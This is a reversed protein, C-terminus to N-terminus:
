PLPYHVDFLEAIDLLPTRDGNLTFGDSPANNNAPVGLFQGVCQLPDRNGNLPRTKLYRQVATRGGTQAAAVVDKFKSRAEGYTQWLGASGRLVSAELDEWGLIGGHGKHLMYPKMSSGPQGASATWLPEPRKLAGQRNMWWDIVSLTGNAVNMATRKADKRVEEALQVARVFPFSHPVFVIGVSCALQKFIDEVESAPPQELATVLVYALSLALRADCIFTLDDGGQIIRRCPYYPNANKVQAKIEAGERGVHVLVYEAGQQLFARRVAELVAQWGNEWRQRLRESWASYREAFKEDSVGSEAMCTLWEYLRQGMKLGDVAVVAMLTSEEDGRCIMNEIDKPVVWGHEDPQESLTQRDERRRGLSPLRFDMSRPQTLKLVDLEHQAEMIARALQGQPFDHVCGVLQLGTDDEIVKRSAKRLVRKVADKDGYFAANGGAAMILTLGADKVLQRVFGCPPATMEEIYASAASANAMRDDSHIFHQIGSIDLMGLTPM